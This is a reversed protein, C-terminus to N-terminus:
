DLSAHTEECRYRPELEISTADRRHSTKFTAKVACQPDYDPVRSCRQHCVKIPLDNAGVTWEVHAGIADHGSKRGSVAGHVRVSDPRLWM